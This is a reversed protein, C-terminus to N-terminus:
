TLSERHKRVLDLVEEDTTAGLESAWEIEDQSLNDARDREIPAFQGTEVHRSVGWPFHARELGPENKDDRNRRPQRYLVVMLGGVITLWLVLTLALQVIQLLESKSM